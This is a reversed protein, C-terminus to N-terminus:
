KRTKAQIVLELLCLSNEVVTYKINALLSYKLPSNLNTVVDGQYGGTKMKLYLGDAFLLLSPNEM